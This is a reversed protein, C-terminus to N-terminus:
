ELRRGGRNTSCLLCFSWYGTWYGTMGNKCGGMTAYTTCCRLGNSHGLLAQQATTHLDYRLERLRIHVTPRSTLPGQPSREAPPQRGVDSLMTVRSTVQFVAHSCTVLVPRRSIIRRLRGQTCNVYGLGQQDGHLLRGSGVKRCLVGCLRGHPPVTVQRSM